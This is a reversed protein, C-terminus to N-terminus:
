SKPISLNARWIPPEGGRYHELGSFLAACPCMHRLAGDPFFESYGWPLPAKRFFIETSILPYWQSCECLKANSACILKKADSVLGVL